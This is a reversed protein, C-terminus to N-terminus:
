GLPQRNYNERFDIKRNRLSRTPLVNRPAPIPVLIEPIEGLDIDEDINENLDIETEPVPIPQFEQENENM